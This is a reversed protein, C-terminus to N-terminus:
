PGLLFRTNLTSSQASIRRNRRDSRNGIESIARTNFIERFM